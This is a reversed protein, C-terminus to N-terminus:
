EWVNGKIASLATSTVPLVASTVDASLEVNIGSFDTSTAAGTLEAVTAKLGVNETGLLVANGSALVAVAVFEGLSLGNLDCVGEADYGGGVSFTLSHTRYRVDNDAVQLADSFSASNTSPQIHTWKSGGETLTIGTVEEGCGTLATTSVASVSNIDVLYLDTVKNLSYQCTSEKLRNRSLGCSASITSM